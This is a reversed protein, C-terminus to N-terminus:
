CNTTRRGDINARKSREDHDALGTPTVRKASGSTVPARVEFASEFRVREPSFSTPATRKSGLQVSAVSRRQATKDRTCVRDLLRFSM